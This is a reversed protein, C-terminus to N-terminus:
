ALPRDSAEPFPIGLPDSVEKIEAVVNPPLLIGTRRLEEERRLEPEGPMLIEEFGKARPAAKLMDIMQDMRDGFDSVTMFRSVDIAAVFHGNDQPNTFDAYLNNVLAGFAAGSLVGSFVDVLVAIASGKPGAFPLVVGAEGAKADTTPNGDPDLAWGEPISEGRKAAEVVKGRAVVSSSMDVVLAPHRGAPIAVAFPNTGLGRGRSGWVAMSLPPNTASFGIFGHPLAQMAFYSCPGNHNSRRAVGIGVGSETALAIAERTAVNGVVAGSGNDGDVLAVTPATREVKIDPRASVVGRKVRETYIQIRTVGHAAHGRLDAHILNEAVQGADDEPLGVAAFVRQTFTQLSEADVYIPHATM